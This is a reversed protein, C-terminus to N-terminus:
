ENTGPRTGRVWSKKRDAPDPAADGIDKRDLIEAPDGNGIAAAADLVTDVPSVLGGVMAAAIAGGAVASGIRKGAEQRALRHAFADGGRGFEEMHASAKLANAAAGSIQQGAKRLDVESAGVNLVADALRQARRELAALADAAVPAAYALSHLQQALQQIQSSM